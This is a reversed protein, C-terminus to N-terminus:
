FSGPRSAEVLMLNGDSADIVSYLLWRQDPALAMGLWWRKGVTLVTTKKQTAYEFFDISTQRPMHRVALYYLGRTAVVFNLSGSVGDVVPKEEGGDAPVQWIATPSAPSKAYYLYRGDLSETATLGGHQTVQRAAGGAAPMKWVETTGTRNSGFYISRGDRSWRPEVEEAPDDTIRRVEGTGPKLLYLDSSGERRSTFLITTGDPSWRPNSCLPGKTFTVQVPNAGDADAIWIEEDGSRNSTFALRKGDPSVDPTYEDYTSSAIPRPVPPSTPGALPIKWLASDRFETAYVLSGGRSIAVATAREGFPLLEPQSTEANVAIKQLRPIGAHGASSFLLSRGDASWALGLINWSQAIVLRPPGTPTMAGSVPVTYVANSASKSARIFALQRGDPSFAPTTDGAERDEVQTLRRREGGDLAILWIGTATEGSPRGGVAVWKSDATWALNGRPRRQAGFSAITTLQREAGGLAPVVVVAGETGAPETRQFAIFRGDPSWAPSDDWRPDSTLRV